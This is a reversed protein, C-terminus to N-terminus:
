SVNVIRRSGEPSLYVPLTIKNLMYKFSVESLLFSLKDFQYFVLCQSFAVCCNLRSIAFHIVPVVHKRKKIYQNQQPFNTKGGWFLYIVPKCLLSHYCSLLLSVHSPCTPPHVHKALWLCSLKHENNMMEKQLKFAKKKKLSSCITQGLSVNQM